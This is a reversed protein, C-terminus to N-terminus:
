QLAGKAFSLKNAKILKYLHRQLSQKSKEKLAYADQKIILTELSMLGDASVPTAPTQPIDEQLSLGVIVKNAVSATLEPVPQPVSRLVRDPNFPFLGSAAFGAKVNKATFAKERATSYLSTFHQKGIM